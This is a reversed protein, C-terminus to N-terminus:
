GVFQSLFEFNGSVFRRADDVQYLIQAVREVGVGFAFGSYREPSIEVNRLVEPHVMGAGLIEIWGSQKCVKCGGGGCFPCSIAVEAGPEVFPFYDPRLRVRTEPGFLLRAFESLVGRLDAFSIGEGVLLGEVQHFMPLHTRDPRDRRYVRGPSIIQIRDIEGRLLRGGLEEMARIQVPSTHTRLLMGPALIFTDVEGRAPHHEPINLAEFNYYDLEAEPGEWVDFGMAVFIGVMEELTQTIPHLRGVLPLDGSITPDLYSRSIERARRLEERKKKVLEELERKLRNVTQGFRPREETPLSGIARTARSLWGESGLAKAAARNLQDENGAAAIEERARSFLEELREVSLAETSM